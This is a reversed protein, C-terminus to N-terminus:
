MLWVLEWWFPRYTCNNCILFTHDLHSKRTEKMKHGSWIENISRENLSGLVASNDYDLCCIPVQGDVSVVISTWLFPCPHFKRTRNSYKVDNLAGGWNHLYSVNVADVVGQWKQVFRKTESKNQQSEVYALMIKPKTSGREHRLKVLTKVNKEVLDFDLAPRIKEYVSESFADLSIVIQDLGSDLLQNMFRENLLSGNTTISIFDIGKAKAYSIRKVLLPDLLPEGFGHIDVFKIGLEKSDDIVKRFLNFDMINTKRRMKSRACFSCRSNCANTTEIMLLQPSNQCKDIIGSILKEYVFSYLPNFDVLPSDLFMLIYKKFQYNHTIVRM